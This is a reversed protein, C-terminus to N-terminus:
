AGRAAGETMGADEAPIWDENRTRGENTTLRGPTRPLGTDFWVGVETAM